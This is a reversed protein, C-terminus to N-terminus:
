DRPDDGPDRPKPTVTRASQGDVLAAHRDCVPQRCLAGFAAGLDRVKGGAPQGRRPGGVRYGCRIEPAQYPQRPPLYGTVQEADCSHEVQVPTDLM